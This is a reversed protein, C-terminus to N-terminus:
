ANRGVRELVSVCPQRSAGEYDGEYDLVPYDPTTRARSWGRTALSMCFLINPNYRNQFKLRYCMSSSQDLFPVGSLSRAIGIRACSISITSADSRFQSESHQILRHKIQSSGKGNLRRLSQIMVITTM